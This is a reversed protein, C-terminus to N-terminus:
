ARNIKLLLLLKYESYASTSLEGLYHKLYLLKETSVKSHHEIIKLLRYSHMEKIVKNSTSSKFNEINTSDLEGADIFKFVELYENVYDKLYSLLHSFGYRYQYVIKVAQKYNIYTEAGVLYSALDYIAFDNSKTAYRRITEKTVIPLAALANVNIIIDPLYGKYRNYLYEAVSVETNLNNMIYAIVDEKSPKLNDILKYDLDIEKAVTEFKAYKKQSDFCYIILNFNPLAKLKKLKDKTPIFHCLVLWGSALLPPQSLMTLVTDKSGSYLNVRCSEPYNKKFKPLQSCIDDITNEILAVHM